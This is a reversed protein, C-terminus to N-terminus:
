KKSKKSKKSTKPKEEEIEESEVDIVIKEEDEALQQEADTKIEEMRDEADIKVALVGAVCDTTADKVAKSELIKKGVLATAIGAAFILIEKHEMAQNFVKRHPMVVGEHFKKITGLIKFGCLYYLEYLMLHFSTYLINAKLINKPLVFFLFKTIVLESM